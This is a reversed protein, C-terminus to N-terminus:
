EPVSYWYVFENLSIRGDGDLDVEKIVDELSKTIEGAEVLSEHLPAFHEVDLYGTLKVDYVRFFEGVQRIYAAAEDSEDHQIHAFRDDNQRWRLYESFDIKEDGDKDLLAVAEDLEEESLCYGSVYCKIRFEERTMYERGGTCVLFSARANMVRAGESGTRYRLEQVRDKGEEQTRWWTLFENYDLYGSQSTDLRVFAAELEGVAMGEYNKDSCMRKFQVLSMKGDEGYQEFVIQSLPATKGEETNYNLTM